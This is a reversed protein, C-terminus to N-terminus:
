VCLVPHFGTINDIKMFRLAAIYLLYFAMGLRIAEAVIPRSSFQGCNRSLLCGLDAIEIADEITTVIAIGITIEVRAEEGTIAAVKGCAIGPVEIMTRQVGVARISDAYLSTATTGTGMGEGFTTGTLSWVTVRLDVEEVMWREIIDSRKLTPFVM